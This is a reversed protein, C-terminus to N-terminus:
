DSVVSRLVIVAIADTIPCSRSFRRQAIEGLLMVSVADRQIRNECARAQGAIQVAVAGFCTSESIKRFWLSVCNM